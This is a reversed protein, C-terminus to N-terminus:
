GGFGDSSLARQVVAEVTDWIRSNQQASFYGSVMTATVLGSPSALWKEHKLPKAQLAM